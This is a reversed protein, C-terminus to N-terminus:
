IRTRVRTAIDAALASVDIDAPATIWESHHPWGTAVLTRYNDATRAQLSTDREYADRTRSADAAERSAARQQALEVPTDLLIQLDPTPLRFRGFELDAVWQAGAPDDLRAATYAANSAVYRDLLLVEHQKPGGHAYDNLTHLFAERDLAFLLAMAHISDVIDGMQHNLADSALDAYRTGYRPFGACTVAVPHHPDDRLASVLAQTLTNKGAGDIGEIAIIM